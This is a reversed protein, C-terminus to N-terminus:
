IPFNKQESNPQISQHKFIKFHDLFIIFDILFARWWGSVSYVSKRVDLQSLVMYIDTLRHSRKKFNLQRINKLQHWFNVFDIWVKGLGWICWIWERGEDRQMVKVWILSFIKQIELNLQIDAFNLAFAINITTPHKISFISFLLLYM